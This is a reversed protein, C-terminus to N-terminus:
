PESEKREGDGEHLPHLEGRLAPIVETLLQRLMGTVLAAQPGFRRTFAEVSRDALAQWDEAAVLGACVPCCAWGGRSGWAPADEPIVGDDRVGVAVFDQVDLVHSTEAASDCFDCKV